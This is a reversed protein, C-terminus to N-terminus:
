GDRDAASRVSVQDAFRKGKKTLRFSAGFRDVIGALELESCGVIRESISRDGLLDNPSYLGSESAVIAHLVERAVVPIEVTEDEM